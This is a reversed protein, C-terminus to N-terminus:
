LFCNPPCEAYSCMGVVAALFFVILLFAKLYLFKDFLVQTKLEDAGDKTLM